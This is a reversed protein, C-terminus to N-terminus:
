QCNLPQPNEGTIQMFDVNALGGSSTAELRIELIGTEPVVDVSVESWTTWAGTAPFDLSSVIEIGNILLRASRASSGNAFRWTFQYLDDVPINVKWVIGKGTANDTNAYGTGTFGAHEDEIFGDVYCYGIADEQFTVIRIGGGNPTASVELSNASRNGSFDIAAIVYYYTTGNEVNLDTFSSSTILTETLRVYGQNPDESRYVAYGALDEETNDDWELKVQGDEGLAWVRTPAAPPTLDPEGALWNGLLSMLEYDDSVCDGNLDVAATLHCDDLLWLSMLRALDIFNVMGDQSYDGAFRNPWPSLYIGAVLQRPLKPGAWAVSLHDLGSDGGKHLVELYYKKGAELLIVPSEQPGSEWAFPNTSGAVVAIRAANNPDGDTSLWLESQNASALWFTYDGTQPPYLYGILRSGFANGWDHPELLSSIVQSGTPNDPYNQHGTLESVTSGSINDWWQRTIRGLGPAPLDPNDIGDVGAGRQVRAPVDEGKDLSYPYPPEFVIDTGPHVEGTTNMLVNGSAAIKGEPDGETIYLVYPEDVGNFYNNEILCEAYLRSRTCYNNGPCSYYNNYIHARGYRVSLMREVCNMGWWNHHFTVHLKGLDGTHSDGAGILNVFNHGNNGTYYFKCWAVTVNDAERSIDVCGDDCDFINCHHVYIEGVRAITIGDGEGYGDPNTINLREIIVNQIPYDNEFALNGIITANPDVGRITKNPRIHVKGNGDGLGLDITGSVQIILPDDSEVYNEFEIATVPSVVLGGEGGTVNQAFGDAGYGVTVCVLLMLGIWIMRISNM